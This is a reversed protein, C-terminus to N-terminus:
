GCLAILLPSYTTIHLLSTYVKARGAVMLGFEFTCDYPRPKLYGRLKMTWIKTIGEPVSTSFFVRTEDILRTELVEDLPILSDDAVHKHWNGIWGREGSETFLDYDLLPMTKYAVSFFLPSFKSLRYYSFPFLGRSGESYAVETGNGAQELASVIGDYPNIFYSTKLVASGGGSFIIAKANPGIVAIKKLKQPNLPLIDGENRLLVISESAVKRM